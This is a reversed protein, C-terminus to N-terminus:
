EAGSIWADTKTGTDYKKQKKKNKPGFRSCKSTGLSLTLNSSYSGAQAVVVAIGSRFWM